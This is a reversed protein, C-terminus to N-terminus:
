IVVLRGPIYWVSDLSIRDSVLITSVQADVAVGFRTSSALLLSNSYDVM